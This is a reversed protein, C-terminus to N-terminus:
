DPCAEWLLHAPDKALFGELVLFSALARKKGMQNSVKSLLLAKDPKGTAYLCSCLSM